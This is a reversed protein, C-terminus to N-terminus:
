MESLLSYEFLEILDNESCAKSYNVIHEQKMHNDIAEKNAWKEVAIFKNDNQLDKYFTYEINGEELLTPEVLKNLETVLLDRKGEKAIITAVITLGNM